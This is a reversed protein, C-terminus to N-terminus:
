IEMKGAHENLTQMAAYISERESASLTEVLGNVWDQRMTINETVIRRGAETLEVLRVRRDGPLEVRQVVGQQVMREIMNSAGAPTIQMMDCFRTVECREQYYLYMLVVMQGLSLGTARTYRNFAYLSIRMFTASWDLLSASLNADNM